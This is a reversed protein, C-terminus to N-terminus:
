DEVRLYPIAPSGKEGRAFAAALLTLSEDTPTDHVKILVAKNEASRNLRTVQERHTDTILGRDALAVLLDTGQAAALEEFFSTWADLDDLWDHWREEFEDELEAPLEWLTIANPPDYIDKCRQRAVAFVARAQAFYHTRPFGRSLAKKGYPGLMGQTNWWALRDMEGLRAVVLRLKLLHELDIDTDAPM